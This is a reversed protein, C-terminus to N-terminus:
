SIHADGDLRSRRGLHFGSEREALVSDAGLEADELVFERSPLTSNVGLYANSGLQIWPKLTIARGAAHAPQENDVIRRVTRLREDDVPGRLMVLFCQPCTILQRFAALAAESDIRDFASQEMLYLQKARDYVAPLQRHTELATAVEDATLHGAEQLRQLVARERDHAHEWSEASFRDDGSYDFEGDGSDDAPDDDGSDDAPDDIELFIRVVELIGAPTGRKEFLEPARALLRRHANESWTEGPDLSLWRDLWSLYEAPIGQSDLYRTSAGIEEEVDTFVSEFISLYRELFAASVPDEQYIEPLYRVYSQGPFYARFTRLSPSTSETGLLSLEVWLYQGVADELLADRPDPHDLSHWRVHARETQELWDNATAVPADTIASIESATLTALESRWRVGADHLRGAYTEGLGDVSRLDESLDEDDTAYYRLQVQSSSGELDFSSTIRHWGTGVEGSDLRTRVQGDYRGTAPNRRNHTVQTLFTVSREIEEEVQRIEDVVYLGERSGPTRDLCLNVSGQKFRTPQDNSSQAFVTPQDTSSGQRFTRIRDFARNDLSFRFLIQEEEDDPGVSALLEDENGVEICSPDFTQATGRIEFTDIPYGDTQETGDVDFKRVVTDASDSEVRSDLIYRNGTADIAFESPSELGTIARTARGREDLAAVFGEGPGAGQDLVQVSGDGTALDVPTDFPETAIWRTQLLHRSFAHVRGAKGDTLYLSDATVCIARPDRDTESQSERDDEYWTCALHTLRDTGSDYRYVDGEADLLYLTGCEDLDIDVIIREGEFGAILTEPSVYTPLPMPELEVGEDTVEANSRTWGDWSAPTQPGLFAFEM